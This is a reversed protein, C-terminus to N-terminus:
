PESLFFIIRKYGWKWVGIIKKSEKGTLVDNEYRIAIYTDHDANRFRVECGGVMTHTGDRDHDYKLSGNNVM